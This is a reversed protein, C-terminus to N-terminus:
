QCATFDVLSYPLLSFNKWAISCISNMDNTEKSQTQIRSILTKITVNSVLAYRSSWIRGIVHGFAFSPSARQTSLSHVWWSEGYLCFYQSKPRLM